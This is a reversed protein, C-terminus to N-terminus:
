RTQPILRMVLWGAWGELQFEYRYSANDSSTSVCTYRVQPSPSPIIQCNTMGNPIWPGLIVLYSFAVVGAVALTLLLRRTRMWGMLGVVIAVPLGLCAMPLYILSTLFTWSPALVVGFSALALGIAPGAFIILMMAVFTRIGSRWSASVRQISTNM